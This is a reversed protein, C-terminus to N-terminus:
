EGSLGTLGVVEGCGECTVLWDGAGDLEIELVMVRWGIAGERGKRKKNRRERGEEKGQKGM